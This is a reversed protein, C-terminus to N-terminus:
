PGILTSHSAVCAWRDSGRVWTDTFRERLLYPKGDRLGNERYEGSVVAATGYLHVKMFESVIRTPHLASSQVSALYTAKDMLKGDYDVYVLETGLLMDLAVTDKQQVAQNWANELALIRNQGADPQAATQASSRPFAVLLLFPFLKWM